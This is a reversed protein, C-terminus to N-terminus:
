TFEIGLTPGSSVVGLLTAHEGSQTLQAAWLAPRSPLGAYGSPLVRPWPPSQFTWPSTLLALGRLLDGRSGSGRLGPGKGCGTNWSGLWAPLGLGKGM